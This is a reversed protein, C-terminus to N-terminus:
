EYFFRKLVMIIKRILSNENKISRYANVEKSYQWLQTKFQRIQKQKDQLSHILKQIQFKYDKFANIYHVRIAMGLMPSEPKPRALFDKIVQAARKGCKGDNFSFLEDRLYARNKSFKTKISIAREIASRTESPNKVVEGILMEPRKIREVVSQPSILGGSYWFGNFEEASRHQDFVKKDATTDLVVLPKDVVLTELLASSSDSVVVDSLYFLSLIDDADDFLFLHPCAQLKQVIPKETLANHNHFKVLMNFDSALHIIEDGYTYLSSLDSHTPLYLVTKKAPDLNKKIRLIESQDITNNFWDDFKPTGIMHSETLLSLYHQAHPGETLSLDFLVSWPAFTTINKGVGYKIRVSKKKLFWDDDPLLSSLPPQYLTSVIIDYKEFFKKIKEQDSLELFVRWSVGSNKLLEVSHSIHSYGREGVSSYWTDCVVFESEPIHHAINKYVWFHFPTWMVFVIKPNPHPNEEFFIKSM